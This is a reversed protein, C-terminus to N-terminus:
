GGKGERPGYVGGRPVSEEIVGSMEKGDLLTGSDGMRDVLPRLLRAISL